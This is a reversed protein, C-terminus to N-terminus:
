PPKRAPIKVRASFVEQTGGGYFGPVSVQKAQFGLSQLWARVSQNNVSGGQLEIVDLGCARGLAFSRARFRLFAPGAAWPYQNSIHFLQSMLGDATLEVYGSVPDGGDTPYHFRVPEGREFAANDDPAVGLELLAKLQAENLAM